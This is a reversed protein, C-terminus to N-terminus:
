CNADVKVKVYNIFASCVVLFFRAEELNVPNPKGNPHRIDNKQDSTYGYLKIFAETLAPHLEMKDQLKRLLVSFDGKEDGVTNAALTQIAHISDKISNRYDPKERNSLKELAQLIYKSVPGNKDQSDLALEIEEVEQPETVRSITDGIFQYASNNRKLEENCKYLFMSKRIDTYNKAVFEMFNYVEYWKCSFFYRKLYEKANMWDNHIEDVPKDFYYRWLRDYLSDPIRNPLPSSSYIYANLDPNSWPTINRWICIDLVSWLGNKLPDDVSEIQIIDRVKTYGYRESFSLRNDKDIDRGNM